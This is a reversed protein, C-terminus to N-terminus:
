RGEDCGLETVGSLVLPYQFCYVGGEREMEVGGYGFGFGYGFGDVWAGVERVGEFRQGWNLDGEESGRRGSSGSGFSVKSGKKAKKSSGNGHRTKIDQHRVERETGYIDQDYGDEILFRQMPYSMEPEGSIPNPDIFRTNTALPSYENTVRMDFNEREPGEPGQFSLASSAYSQARNHYLPNLDGTNDYHYLPQEIEGRPSPPGGNAIEVCSCNEPNFVPPRSSSVTKFCQSCLWPDISDEHELDLDNYNHNHNPIDM